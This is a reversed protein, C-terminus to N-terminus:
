ERLSPVRMSEWWNMIAYVKSLYEPFAPPKFTETLRDDWRYRKSFGTVPGSGSTTGVPGRTNQVISGLVNLSGYLPDAHKPSSNDYNQAFFSGSRTFICGDISCDDNNAANDAVVVYKEAVIGLLDDSSTVQPNREYKVNDEIVINTNLAALSLVGDLTGKVHISKTSAL